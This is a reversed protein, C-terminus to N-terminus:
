SFYLLYNTTIKTQLAKPVCLTHEYAHELTMFYACCDELISEFQQVIEITSCTKYVKNHQMAM